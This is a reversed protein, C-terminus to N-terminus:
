MECSCSWTLKNGGILEDPHSAGQFERGSNKENYLGPVSQLSFTEEM